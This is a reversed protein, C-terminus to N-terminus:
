GKPIIINKKEPSKKTKPKTDASHEYVPSIELDSGDGAVVQLDIKEIKEEDYGDM